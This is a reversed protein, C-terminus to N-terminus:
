FQVQLDRARAQHFSNARPSSGVFLFERDIFLRRFYERSMTALPMLLIFPKNLTVLAELVEKKKTFPPNSVILDGLHTNEFFDIPEHIM